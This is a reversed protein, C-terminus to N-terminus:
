ESSHLMARQCVADHNQLSGDKAWAEQQAHTTVATWGTARADQQAILVHRMILESQGHGRGGRM